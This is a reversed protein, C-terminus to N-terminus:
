PAYGSESSCWPRNGTDTHVGRWLRFGANSFSGADKRFVNGRDLIGAIARGETAFSTEGILLEGRGDRGSVPLDSEGLSVAEDPALTTGATPTDDSTGEEAGSAAEAVGGLAKSFIM